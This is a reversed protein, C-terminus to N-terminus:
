GLRRTLHDGVRLANAIITLAPNVAASSPFFSADVVYLNGVEHARCDVDLASTAPDLGFRVTGNQHAVGALPIRQGLYLNRGFLGEHCDHGHVACRTQRKMAEKLKAILRAHATENNPRYSLVINGRRDLTVRNDPDPLDESTLWFDLSHRAMLELTWGPAIAPAGARLTEGDLKGVFSIHGMPFPWDDAGFYFDNLALTKQFITPNPCKSIAMLVSNVHGMYHRGVVGSGNALGRPHRDNASRLLLAASNIAGASVIVIDAAYEEVRGERRVIVKTVERGSPSTELREVYAGTVLTANPHALAPDVCVVQADSKAGVLCPHGDCTACRICVSSQPAREDLMIGLPVHFPRLGQRAFDDALQQIRPEHSVAPYPYPGSAPPETPDVGREGHVHYLREARAYYPELEEYTIPWAPSVGEAHKLEGFDERRMRFLAAGYFKTNGGVWYNTHPHLDRGDADRWVEKTAYKGEVNVARTSWNDRERPAYGGRELLLIRNGTPALAHFLTGGGAGSGIIIVDYRDAM